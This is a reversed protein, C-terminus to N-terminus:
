GAAADVTVAGRGFEGVPEADVPADPNLDRESVLGERM